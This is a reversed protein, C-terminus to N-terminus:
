ERNTMIASFMDLIRAVTRLSKPVFLSLSVKNKICVNSTPQEPKLKECSTSFAAATRKVAAFVDLAKASISLSM